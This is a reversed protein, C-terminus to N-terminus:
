KPSTIQSPVIALVTLPLPDENMVTITQYDAFGKKFTIRKDGTYLPTADDMNDTSTRFPILDTNDETPGVRVGLSKYLRITVDAVKKRRGIAAGIDNGAEMPMTTMYSDYGLGIIAYKIHYPLTIEGSVVTQDPLVAGEALTKVVNGELHELGSVTTAWRSVEGTGSTWPAYSTLDIALNKEDFLTYQYQTGTVTVGDDIYFTRDNIGTTGGVDYVYISDGNDFENDVDDITLTGSITLGIGSISAVQSFVLSCDLYTAERYTDRTIVVDAM